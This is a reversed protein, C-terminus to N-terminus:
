QKDLYSAAANLFSKRLSEDAIKNAADVLSASVPGFTKAVKVKRVRDHKAEELAAPDIRFEIFRVTGHVLTGNLRALMEPALDELHRQWTIDSVAIVLRNDFYEVPSTRQSLMEGATRCWASFVIAAVASENSGLGGLVAPIAGFVQEM